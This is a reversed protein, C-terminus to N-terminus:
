LVEEITVGMAALMKKKLKYVPLKKTMESKVDEIVRRGNRIYAFDAVYHCVITDVGTLPHRVKVSIRVQRELFSIRGAQQQARLVVFREAEKKSDFM